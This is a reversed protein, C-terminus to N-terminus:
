QFTLTGSGAGDKLLEATKKTHKVIEQTATLMRQEMQSGRLNQAARAYFTGQPKTVATQRATAEQASRLKSEYKDVIGEALSYADQAKRIRAEEEDTVDGDAQADSLAKRFEAKASAAAVKSQSILDSLLKMGAAADNKKITFSHM